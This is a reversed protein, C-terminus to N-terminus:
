KNSNLIRQAELVKKNDYIYFHDAEYETKIIWFLKRDM